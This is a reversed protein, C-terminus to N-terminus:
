VPYARLQYPCADESSSVWVGKDVPCFRASKGPAIIIHPFFGAHDFSLYLDCKGRNEVTVLSVSELWGFELAAWEQTAKAARFWPQEDTELEFSYRSVNGEPSEGPATYAVTEIVSVRPHKPKRGNPPPPPITPVLDTM